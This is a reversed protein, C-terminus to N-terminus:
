HLQTPAMKNNMTDWEFGRKHNDGYLRRSYNMLYGYVILQRKRTIRVTSDENDVEPIASSHYKQKHNDGYLPRTQLFTERVEFRELYSCTIRKM